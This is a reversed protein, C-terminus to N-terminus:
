LIKHELRATYTDKPNYQSAPTMYRTLKHIKDFPYPFVNKGACENVWSKDGNGSFLACPQNLNKLILYESENLTLFISNPM